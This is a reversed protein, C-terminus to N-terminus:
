QKFINLNFEKDIEVYEKKSTRDGIFYIVNTETDRMYCNFDIILCTTVLKNKFDTNEKFNDVDILFGMFNERYKYGHIYSLNDNNLNLEENQLLTEYQSELVLNFVSGSKASKPIEDKVSTSAVLALPLISMTIIFMAVMPNDELGFSITSVLIAIVLVLLILFLWFNLEFLPKFAETSFHLIPVIIISPIIIIVILFLCIKKIIEKFKEKM